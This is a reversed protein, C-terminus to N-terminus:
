CDPDFDMWETYEDPQGDYEPEDCDCELEDHFAKNEADIIDNMELEYAEIDEKTMWEPYLM